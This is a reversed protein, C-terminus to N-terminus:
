LAWLGASVTGVLLLLLLVLQVLHISCFTIDYKRMNIGKVYQLSNGNHIDLIGAIM